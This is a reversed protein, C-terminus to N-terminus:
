RIGSTISAGAGIGLPLNISAAGKDYQFHQRWVIRDCLRTPTKLVICGYAYAREDLHIRLLVNRMPVFCAGQDLRLEAAQIQSGNPFSDRKIGFLDELLEAPLM